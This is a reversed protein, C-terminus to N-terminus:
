GRPKAPCGIVRTGPAVDGLVLAGMGVLAGAGVRVNERVRCAMGLYTERGVEVAGALAVSSALVSGEGIHCDHGLVCGALLLAHAGIRAKPGVACGAGVFVGPELNATPSVWAMPHVLIAFRAESLHLAAILNLRRAYTHVSGVALLFCLRSHETAMQQAAELPGLVPIGHYSCGALEPKDDLVGQPVLDARKTAIAAEIMEAANGCAGVVILGQM